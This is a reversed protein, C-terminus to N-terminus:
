GLIHSEDPQPAEEMRMATRQREIDTAFGSVITLVQFFFGIALFTWCVYEVIPLKPTGDPPLLILWIAVGTTFFFLGIVFIASWSKALSRRSNESLAKRWWTLSANIRTSVAWTLLFFLVQAVGGGVLFLLISLMLFVIPGNKKHIFGITWSALSLAVIIAAIGTILYNPIISVAGITQLVVGGTPTNGRLIEFIGHVTGAFGGLIGMYIVYSKTCNNM